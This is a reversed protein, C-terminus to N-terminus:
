AEDHPELKDHPCPGPKKEHGDVDGVNASFAEDMRRVM